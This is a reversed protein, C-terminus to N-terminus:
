KNVRPRGSAAMTAAQARQGRDLLGPQTKLVIFLVPLDGLFRRGRLGFRCGRQLGHARRQGVDLRAQRLDLLYQLFDLLGSIKGSPKELLRAM